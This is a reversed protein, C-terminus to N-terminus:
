QQDRLQQYLKQADDDSNCIVLVNSDDGLTIFIEDFDMQQLLQSMLPGRGPNMVMAIFRENIKLQRVDNAMMTNLRQGLNPQKRAPMSYRYGGDTSPVKILQLEKIDRSVTAQTVDIGENKLLRVMDDQREVNQQSILERIKQQRESKNM